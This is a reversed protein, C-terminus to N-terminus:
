SSIIKKKQKLKLETYETITTYILAFVPVGLFMGLVGFLGGGVTVSFLIWFGNIGLQDGLVIPKIINGDIQQLIVIFIMFGIAYIPKILLLLFIVPIAGLFPGFMPIINTVGIILGIM